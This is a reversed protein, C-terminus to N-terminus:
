RNELGSVFDVGYGWLSETIRRAQAMRKLGRRAATRGIVKNSYQSMIEKYHRPQMGDRGLLNPILLNSMFASAMGFFIEGGLAMAADSIVEENQVKIGKHCSNLKNDIYSDLTSHGVM